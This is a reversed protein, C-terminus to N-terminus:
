TLRVIWSLRSSVAYMYLFKGNRMRLILIDLHVESCPVESTLLDIMCSM